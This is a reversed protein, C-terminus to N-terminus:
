LFSNYDKVREIAIKIWSYKNKIKNVGNNALKARLEEDKLKLLSEILSDVDNETYILGNGDVREKAQVRDSIIIPLGSATADLMSTSEQRPWVGIDAIQYYKSLEQYPVFDHVICAKMKKIEDVQPGDGLFLAKFPENMEVLKDVAKALCLPNKGETFRGTYICLLESEKIELQKRVESSGDSEKKPHFIDTDVGLYAQKVKKKQVGYYKVAIEMADITAPYCISTSWSCIRGPITRTLYFVLRKFLNVKSNSYLPFVSAVIHNATFFKYGLIPKYFAGQLTLFSFADFAQVIDPKIEKLKAGLQKIVIKNGIELFPLRHLKFGDIEKVSEKQIREGLYPKYIIDYNPENYYVQATSTIVHVEHGLSALAKSLLNEVYGMKESYWISLIVIKM